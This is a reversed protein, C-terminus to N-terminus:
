YRELSYFNSGGSYDDPDKSQENWLLDISESIDYQILPDYVTTRNNNYGYFIIAHNYTPKGYKGNGMAAYVIKGEELAEIIEEKDKLSTLKINYRNSAKIIAQGSSGQTKKNFENTNYYLYSGVENPLITHGLIGTFAMAMSTPACGTAGFRYKGFLQKNWRSDKQLFHVPKYSVKEIYHRITKLNNKTKDAKQILRIQIAEISYHNVGAIEGNKAWDLWGYVESHVRYYIDYQNALDGTINIKILQIAKSQGTTGSFMGNPVYNEEWGLRDIYSQYEINGNISTNLDIKLAELRKSRGTTGAINNETVVNQYGIDQVHAQYTIKANKYLFSDNQITISTDNKPLLKIEIAELRLSMAQSGASEGNKAWGLWGQNEIHVRYYIDYYEAIEGTLRIRIAELRKSRGTTGALDGNSVTRQWGIDQVHAEYEINGELATELYIKLAELRKAKGTTGAIEGNNFQKQWGIDQVHSLYKINASIDKEPIPEEDEVKTTEEEGEKTDEVIVEPQEETVEEQEEITEEEVKNNDEIIEEQEEVPNTEEQINIDNNEENFTYNYVVLGEAFVRVPIILTVLLTLLIKRIKMIIM